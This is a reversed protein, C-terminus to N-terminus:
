DIITDLIRKVLPRDESFEYEKEVEIVDKVIKKLKNLENIDIGKFNEDIIRNLVDLYNSNM